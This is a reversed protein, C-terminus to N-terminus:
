GEREFAKQLEEEIQGITAKMRRDIITLLKCRDAHNKVVTAVDTTSIKGAVFGEAIRNMTEADM